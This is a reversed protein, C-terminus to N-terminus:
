AVTEKRNERKLSFLALFGACIIIFSGLWLTLRVGYLRIEQNGIHIVESFVRRSLRNFFNMLVPALILSILLCSRILTFFAAFIRGRVDDTADTQIITYGLVYIGGCCFGLLGIFVAAAALTWVCSAAFICLGAGFLSVIFADEHVVKKQLFIWGIVSVAMGIGLASALVLFGFNGKVNLLQGAFFSGLPVIMAGGFIGTAMGLIVTRIPISNSIYALGEKFELWTERLNVGPMKGPPRAPKTLPLGAVLFASTLYTFADVILALSQQHHALDISPLHTRGFSAVLTLLAYILFGIPATGYSAFMSLSNATPLYEKDVLQPVSAEKASAWALTALEIVLQCLVLVWLRQVWILSLIMFARMMDCTAMITRRNLRDVLVGIAPGIFLGPVLRAILVLAVASGSSGGGLRQAVLIIALLGIWDGMSSIIQASWLRRFSKSHFLRSSEPSALRRIDEESIHRQEGQLDVIAIGDEDIEDM